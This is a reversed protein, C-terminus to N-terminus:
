AIKKMKSKNIIQNVIKKDFNHIEKSQKTSHHEMEQVTRNINDVSLDCFEKRLEIGMWQRGTMEAAQATTGSGMFPDLIVKANPFCSILDLPMQIPFRRTHRGRSGQPKWQNRDFTNKFKNANKLKTKVDKALWYVYEMVPYLRIKARNNTGGQNWHITEKVIFPSKSIWETPSIEKGKSERDKHNYLLSGTPKLVRFCEQLFQLQWGQYKDEPMNDNYCIIKKKGKHHYHLNYPPSTIILDISDNPFTRLVKLVDGNYLSGNNTKFYPTLVLSTNGTPNKVPPNLNFSSFGMNLMIPSVKLVMKNSAQDFDYSDWGSQVETFISIRCHHPTLNEIFSFVQNEEIISECLHVNPLSPAGVNNKTCILLNDHTEMAYPSANLFQKRKLVIQYVCKFGWKEILTATKLIESPPVQFFLTAFKDYTIENINMELLDSFLRDPINIQNPPSWRPRIYVVQYKNKKNIQFKPSTVPSFTENKKVPQKTTTGHLSKYVGHTKIEGNELQKRIREDNLNEYIYAVERLTMHSYGAMKGLQKMTDVKESNKYGKGANSMNQKGQSIFLDKYKLALVGRQFPSLHEKLLRKSIIFKIASDRDPFQMIIVYFPLNHQCAVEYEVKGGVLIYKTKNKWLYIPDIVKGKAVIDREIQEQVGKYIVPMIGGFDIIIKGKFPTGDVPIDFVSDSINKTGNM